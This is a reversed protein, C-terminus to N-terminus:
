VQEIVVPIVRKGLRAAEELVARSVESAVASPSIVFVIADAERVPYDLRSIWEESSGLSVDRRDTLTVFGRKTLEAALDLAFNLDRRSYHIFVKSRETKAQKM